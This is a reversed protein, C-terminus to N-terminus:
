TNSAATLELFRTVMGAACDQAQEGCPWLVETAMSPVTSCVQGKGCFSSVREPGLLVQCGPQVFQSSFFRPTLPM